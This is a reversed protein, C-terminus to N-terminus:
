NEKVGAGKPTDHQGTTNGKFNFAGITLAIVILSILILVGIAVRTDFKLLFGAIAVAYTIVVTISSGMIISSEILGERSLNQSALFLMCTVNLLFLPASISIALLILKGITLSFFLYRSFIYILLIGSLLSASVLCCYLFVHKPTKLIDMINNM